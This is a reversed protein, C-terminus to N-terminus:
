PRRCSRNFVFRTNFDHPQTPHRNTIHCPQCLREAKRKLLHDNISGHPQHCNMCDEKVPPHEWLFPGRKEAHCRLCTENATNGRVLKPAISGHPNHCDSCTMKSERMPMHSTRMLQARRVVHCQGCLQFEGPKALQHQPSIRQHLSHCRVCSLDRREHVSGKWYLHQGKDHCASCVANQKATPAREGYHSFVRQWYDPNTPDGIHLSRPGQCAECGRKELSTRAFHLLIKGMVTKDLLDAQEAHCGQCVESSVYEQVVPPPQPYQKATEAPAAAEPPGGYLAIGAALLLGALM